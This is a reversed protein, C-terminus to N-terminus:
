FGTSTKLPPPVLIRSVNKPPPTSTKSRSNPDFGGGGWTMFESSNRVIPVKPELDTKHPDNPREM